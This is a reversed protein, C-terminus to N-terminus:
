LMEIYIRFGPKTMFIYNDEFSRRAGRAHTLTEGSYFPIFLWFLTKLLKTSLRNKKLVGYGREDLWFYFESFYQGKGGM